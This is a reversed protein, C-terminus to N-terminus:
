MTKIELRQMFAHLLSVYSLIMGFKELCLLFNIIPYFKLLKKISRFCYRLMRGSRDNDLM